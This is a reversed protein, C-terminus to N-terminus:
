RAQRKRKGYTTSLPEFKGVTSRLEMVAPKEIASVAFDLAGILTAAREQLEKVYPSYHLEATQHSIGLVKAVDYLSAGKRLLAVALTDRFRHPHARQVGCAKWLRKLHKAMSVIPRGADTSFLYPSKAQVSSQKLLHAEIAAALNPHLQLAVKVGRKQTRLVRFDGSISDRRMAIVDGIRLGTYLFLNVIAELYSRERLYDSELMTRVEADTFPLTKGGSANRNKALVPNKALYGCEIAYGFMAHLVRGDFRTGGEAKPLGSVPHKMLARASNFAVIQGPDIERLLTVNRMKMFDRFANTVYRYGAITTAARGETQLKAFYEELFEEIGREEGDVGFHNLEAQRRRADAVNRDRTKLSWRRQVGNFTRQAWWTRGRRYITIM